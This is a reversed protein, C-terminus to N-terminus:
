PGKSNRIDPSIKQLDQMVQDNLEAKLEEDSAVETFKNHSDVFGKWLTEYCDLKDRELM